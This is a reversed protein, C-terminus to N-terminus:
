TSSSAGRMPGAGWTSSAPNSISFTTARFVTPRCTDKTDRWTRPQWGDPGPRIDRTVRIQAPVIDLREASEEGIRSKTAGCACQKQEAAVDHVVEVRPLHAPLPKRGRQKTRTHAPVVIEAVPEAEEVASTVAEAENFLDLQRREAETLKESKRGFLKQKLLEIEEQLVSIESHYESIMNKLIQVDNPLKQLDIRM